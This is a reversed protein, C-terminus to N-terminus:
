VAQGFRDLLGPWGNPDDFARRVLEAQEGFRELDRHELEVLTRGEAETTFRIEVETVFDPDYRYDGTLQWALVLREPPDWALVKGWETEVGDADVEYWRGGERPEVVADVFPHAGIQHSPNWWTGMRATFVDFAKERDVDVVISRRVPEVITM